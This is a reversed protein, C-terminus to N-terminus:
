ETEREANLGYDGYLGAYEAGAYWGTEVVEDTRNFLLAGITLGFGHSVVKPHDPLIWEGSEPEHASTVARAMGVTLSFKAFYSRPAPPLPQGDLAATPRLRARPEPGTGLDVYLRFSPRWSATDNSMGAEQHLMLGFSHTMGPMSRHGADLFGLTLGLGTFSDENAYYGGMALRGQLQLGQSCGAVPASVTANAQIWLCASTSCAIAIALAHVLNQNLPTYSGPM